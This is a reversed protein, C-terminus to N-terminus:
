TREKERHIGKSSPFPEEFESSESTTTGLHRIKDNPLAELDLQKRVEEFGPFSKFRTMSICKTGSKKLIKTWLLCTECINTLVLSQISTRPTITLCTFNVWIMWRDLKSIAELAIDKPDLDETGKFGLTLLQVDVEEYLTKLLDFYPELWDRWSADITETKTKLDASSWNLLLYEQPVMNLTHHTIKKPSCKLSKNSVATLLWRTKEACLGTLDLEEFLIKTAYQSVFHSVLRLSKLTALDRVENHHVGEIVQSGDSKLRQLM